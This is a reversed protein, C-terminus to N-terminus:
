LEKLGCEKGPCEDVVLVEPMETLTEKMDGSRGDNTWNDYM